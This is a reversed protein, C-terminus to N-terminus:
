SLCNESAQNKFQGPTKGLVSFQSYLLFSFSFSCYFLVFSFKNPASMNSCVYVTILKILFSLARKKKPMDLSNYIIRHM